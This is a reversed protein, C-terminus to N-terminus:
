SVAIGKGFARIAKIGKQPGRPSCFYCTHGCKDQKGNTRQGLVACFVSTASKNYKRRARSVGYKEAYKMLSQRYAMDQTISKSM